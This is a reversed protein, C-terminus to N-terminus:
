GQEMEELAQQQELWLEELHQTRSGLEGERKLLETLDAKRAPNYLSSNCLQAQL